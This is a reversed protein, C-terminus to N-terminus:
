RRTRYGYASWGQWWLLNGNVRVLRISSIAEALRHSKESRRASYALQVRFREGSIDCVCFTMSRDIAIMRRLPTVTSVM